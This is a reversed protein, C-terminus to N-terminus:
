LTFGKKSLVFLRASHGKIFDCVISNGDFTFLIDYDKTPYLIKANQMKYKSLDVSVVNKEKALNWVALIIKDRKESIIGVSFGVKQHMRIRGMPFIPYGKAVLPSLKKALKVGEEILVTNKEDALDIRGSLYPKGILATVFNFITQEGDKADEIVYKPLNDKERYDFSQPYPYCWIGAKEPPMFSLSGTVISPNMLYDEQDSTSQLDFHQLTGNDSRCAGSGCNEIYLDPYKQKLNDIFELFAKNNEELGVSAPEGYITTGTFETNNHDNKIYRVGMNYVVEVCDNLYNILKQSRMNAIPRHYAIPENNRTLYIDNGLMDIMKYSIAEFEFWLGAIMKKSLIYDIIGKLGYSGFKENAMTWLGQTQWGDDICFVDAGVESAKDILRILRKDSEIAWNCNMFDNFVVPVLKSHSVVRKYKILEKIAEEFCGKVVGYVTTCTTYAQGRKLPIVTGLREDASGTKVSLFKTNLGGCMYIEFFWSHGGEIEFFWCESAKEDEIILIPYHEGTSWSSVSDLRFCAKEQPHISGAYIGLEQPTRTLWQGEGQWKNQCIHVKITGDYLRTALNKDYCVGNINSSTIQTIYREQEGNNKVTSSQCLVSIGEFEKLNIIASLEKNKLVYEIYTEKNKTSKSVFELTDSTWIVSHEKLQVDYAGGERIVTNLYGFAEAKRKKTSLYFQGKDTFEINM